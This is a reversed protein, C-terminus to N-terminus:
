SNQEQPLRPLEHAKYQQYCCRKWVQLSSEFSDFIVKPWGVPGNMFWLAHGWPCQIAFTNTSWTLCDLIFHVDLESALIPIMRSAVNRIPYRWSTKMASAVILCGLVKQSLPVVRISLFFMQAAGPFISYCNFGVLWCCREGVRGVIQFDIFLRYM